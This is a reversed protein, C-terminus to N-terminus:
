DGLPPIQNYIEDQNFPLKIIQSVFLKIEAIGIGKPLNPPLCGISGKSCRLGKFSKVKGCV